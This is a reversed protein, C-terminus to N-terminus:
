RSVPKVASVDGISELSAAGLATAGLIATFTRFASVSQNATRRRPPPTSVVTYVGPSDYRLVVGSPYTLRAAGAGTIMIKDGVNVAVDNGSVATFEGNGRSIMVPNKTVSLKGALQSQAKAPLAMTAGALLVLALMTRFISKM